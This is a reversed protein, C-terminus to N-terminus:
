TNSEMETRLISVNSQLDSRLALTNSEMESRLTSVSSELETDNIVNSLFSGDGIFHSAHINGSAAISTTANIFQVTESTVNGNKTIEQLNSAINSLLGGDGTISSAFLVGVNATGHVDLNYEPFNTAVGIRDQVNINNTIVTANEIILQGDPTGLSM